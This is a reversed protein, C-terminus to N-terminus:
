YYVNFVCHHVNESIFHNVFRVRQLEVSMTIKDITTDDPNITLLTVQYCRKSLYPRDDAFKTNADSLSYVICPYTLKNSSPRQYYVNNSGLISVLEDHLDERTKM